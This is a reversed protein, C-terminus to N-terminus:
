KFIHLCCNLHHLLMPGDSNYLRMDVVPAICISGHQSSCPRHIFARMFCYLHSCFARITHSESVSIARLRPAPTVRHPVSEPASENASHLFHAALLLLAAALALADPLFSVYSRGPSSPSAICSGFVQLHSQAPTFSALMQLGGTTSHSFLWFRPFYSQSHRPQHDNCACRVCRACGM